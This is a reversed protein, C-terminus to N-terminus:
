RFGQSIAKEMTPVIGPSGGNERDHSLIRGIQYLFVIYTTTFAADVLIPLANRFFPIAQRIENKAYYKAKMWVYLERWGKIPM